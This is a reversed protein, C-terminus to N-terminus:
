KGTNGEERETLDPMSLYDFSSLRDPLNTISCGLFKADRAADPARLNHKTSVM